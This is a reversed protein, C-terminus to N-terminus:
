DLVFKWEIKTVFDDKLYFTLPESSFSHILGSLDQNKYIMKDNSIFTPDGLKKIIKNKHVGVNLDWKLELKKSTVIINLYYERDIFTNHYLKIYVGKEYYYIKYINNTTEVKKKIINDPEGLRNQISKLTKGYTFGYRYYDNQNKEFDFKNNNIIIVLIIILIVNFKKM